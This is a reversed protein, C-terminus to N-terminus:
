STNNINLGNEYKEKLVRDHSLALIPVALQQQAQITTLGEEKAEEEMLGREEMQSVLGEEDVM